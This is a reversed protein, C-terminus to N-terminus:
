QAPTNPKAPATASATAPPPTEGAKRLVRDIISRMEEESKIGSIVEGNVFMTPTADVGLNDGEAVSARVATEDQKKVCAELAGSNLNHKAGLDLTIKDLRGFTEDLEKKEGSINKQNAHTYDAFEWFADPNQAALCNADVAAHLAWPHIDALPYDKYIVKVQNGYIKMLDPFLTQHMRACFPCEFDDYNVITVKADKNGREPRGAVDIDEAIDLKEWEIITKNDSSILFDHSSHRPGNSIVVPVKDYGPIESHSRQGVTVEIEPPLRFTTRVRREIRSNISATDSNNGPAQAICCTFAVPLALFVFLVTRFRL